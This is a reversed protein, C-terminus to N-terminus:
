FYEALYKDVIDATRQVKYSEDHLGSTEEVIVNKEGLIPIYLEPGKVPQFKPNLLEDSKSYIIILKFANSSPFPAVHDKIYPVVSSIEWLAQDTGFAEETFGTYSADEIPLLPLSYIGSIGFVAACKERAFNTTEELDNLLKTTTINQDFLTTYLSVSKYVPNLLVKPEIFIQLSMFAGASHGSIAFQDVRHHTRLYTLAALTDLTFDPHQAGRGNSGDLPKALTYDISACALSKPYKELLASILPLGDTHNIRPDRWAGGHIFIFWFPPYESASSHKYLGITRLPDAPAGLTGSYSVATYNIPM